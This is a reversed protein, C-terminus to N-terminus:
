FLIVGCVIGLPVWSKKTKPIKEFRELVDFKDEM